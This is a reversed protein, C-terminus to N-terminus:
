FMRMLFDKLVEEGLYNEDDDIDLFNWDDEIESFSTNWYASVAFDVLEEKTKHKKYYVEDPMCVQGNCLSNGFLPIYYKRDEDGTESLAVKFNALRYSDEYRIIDMFFNVYPIKVFRSSIGGEGDVLFLTRKQPQKLIVEIM